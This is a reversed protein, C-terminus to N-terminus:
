GVQRLGPPVPPEHPGAPRALPSPLPEDEILMVVPSELVVVRAALNKVQVHLTALQEAISPERKFHMGMDRRLGAVHSASIYAPLGRIKALEAVKGDDLDERYRGGDKDWSSQIIPLLAFQDPRTLKKVRAKESM